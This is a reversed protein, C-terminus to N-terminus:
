KMEWLYWGWIFWNDEKNELINLIVDIKKEMEKNRNVFSKFNKIAKYIMIIIIVLIAFNIITGIIDLHNIEM